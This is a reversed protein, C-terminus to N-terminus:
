AGIGPAPGRWFRARLAPRWPLGYAAFPRRELRSAGWAFLLIEALQALHGILYLEITGMGPLWQQLLRGQAPFGVLALAAYLLVGVAGRVSPRGPFARQWIGAVPPRISPTAGPPTMGSM